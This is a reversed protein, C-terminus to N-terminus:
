IETQLKDWVGKLFRLKMLHQTQPSFNYVALFETSLLNKIIQGKKYSRGIYYLLNREKNLFFETLKDRHIATSTHGILAICMTM